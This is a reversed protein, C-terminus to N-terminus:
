AGASVLKLENTRSEEIQRKMQFASSTVVLRGDKIEYHHNCIRQLSPRHSVVILTHDKRLEVLLDHLYQDNRDDFGLNADDFLVISLDGVLARVTVLRQAFGHPIAQSLDNNAMTDLGNKLRLITNDLGLKRALRISDSVPEGERYLTMNELLTGNFLVGQQPILGIQSRVSSRDLKHIDVDDLLVQGETPTIFGMILNLLTSKGSGNAGRISISEGEPIVLNIDKLLTPVNDNYRFKINRLEIKGKLKIDKTEEEFEETRLSLTKELKCQKEDVSQRYTWFSLARLAPQLVRGALMTGAALAGISLENNVVFISGISVFSVMVAQSFTTALGHVVCNIRSLEFVSSASSTQLREYRRLMQSEMALAKITHMGQLCEILFNQRREYHDSKMKIATRLISGAIYSIIFFVTIISVPILVMYGSFQWILGLFLFVFPIEVVLLMASGYYFDRVAEIGQFRELHVGHSDSDFAALNSDMVAKMAAINLKYEYKAGARSLIYTRSFSLLGDLIAVGILVIVFVSLTDYSQNPLIRDYVQLVIIPMALALLNICVSASLVDLRQWASSSEFLKNNHNLM